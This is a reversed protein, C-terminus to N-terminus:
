LDGEAYGMRPLHYNRAPRSTPERELDTPGDRQEAAELYSATTNRRVCM